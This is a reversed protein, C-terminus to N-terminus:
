YRLYKKTGSGRCGREPAGRTFSWLIDFRSKKGVTVNSNCYIKKMGPPCLKSLALNVLNLLQLTTIRTIDANTVILHTDDLEPIDNGLSIPHREPGKSPYFHWAM